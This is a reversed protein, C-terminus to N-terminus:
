VPTKFITRVTTQGGLLRFADVYRLRWDEVQRNDIFTQRASIMQSMFERAQACAAALRMRRAKREVHAAKFRDMCWAFLCSAILLIGLACWLVIVDQERWFSLCGQIKELLNELGHWLNM